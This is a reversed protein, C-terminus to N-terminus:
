SAWLKINSHTAAPDSPNIVVWWCHWVCLTHSLVKDWWIAEGDFSPSGSWCDCRFPAMVIRLCASEILNLLFLSELQIGFTSKNERINREIVRGRHIVSGQVVGFACGRAQPHLRFWAFVTLHIGISIIRPFISASKEAPQLRHRCTNNGHSPCAIGTITSRAGEETICLTCQTLDIPNSRSEGNWLNQECFPLERM